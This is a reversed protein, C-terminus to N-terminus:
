QILKNFFSLSIKILGVKLKAVPISSLPTLKIHHTQLGIDSDAQMCIEVM